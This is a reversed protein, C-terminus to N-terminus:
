CFGGVYWVLALVIVALLVLALLAALAYEIPRADM